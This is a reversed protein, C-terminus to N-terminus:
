SAVSGAAAPKAGGFMQGLWSRLKGSVGCDVVEHLHLHSRLAEEQGRYRPPLRLWPTDPAGDAVVFPNLLGRGADYDAAKGVVETREPLVLWPRYRFVLEGNANGELSGWTRMPIKRNHKMGVCSFTKLTDSAVAKKRFFLIDTSFILGFISLRFSWGAVLLSLLTLAVAIIIATTPAIQNTGALIGVMALRASKLIADVGPFPCILILVDVVNFALWVAVYAILGVAAGVLWGAGSWAQAALGADAAYASPFLYNAAEAVHRAAPQAVTDAFMKVIIPLVAIAGAKNVIDGLANLPVKLFPFAECITSNFLMLGIILLLPVWITPQDYLPLSARLHDPARFYHWMGLAAVGFLPNVAQGTLAVFAQNIKGGRDSRTDARTDNGGQNFEDILSNLAGLNKDVQPDNGQGTYGPGAYEPGPQGGYGPESYGQGTYGQNNAANPQYGQEAATPTFLTFCFFVTILCGPVLAYFWTKRM